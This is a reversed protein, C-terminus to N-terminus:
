EYTKIIKYNELSFINIKKKNEIMLEIFDLTKITITSTNILPHFNIKDQRYLVDELFFDVKNNYDNFLAYPSVSGPRIGLYKGLYEERAFSLNGASISKSFKKLDVCSKEECSFLCFYKKKNKLFLNKTHAGEINGRKIKSDDVSYLPEHDFKDFNIGKDKLNKLLNNKNIM